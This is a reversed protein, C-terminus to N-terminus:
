RAVRVFMSASQGTRLRGADANQNATTVRTQCLRGLRGRPRGGPLVSLGAVRRRVM